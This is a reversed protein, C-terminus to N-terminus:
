SSPLRALRAPSSVAVLTSIPDGPQLAREFVLADDDGWTTGLADSAEALRAVGLAAALEAGRAGDLDRAGDAMRRQWAVHYLVIRALLCDAAAAAPVAEPDEIGDQAWAQGDRGLFYYVDNDSLCVPILGERAGVEDGGREGSEACAAAGVTFGDFTLGGWAADFAIAAAHAQYGHQALHARLADEDLRDGFGVDLGRLARAAVAGLRTDMEADDMVRLM